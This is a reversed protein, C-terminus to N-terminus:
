AHGLLSAIGPRSLVNRTAITSGREHELHDLFATLIRWTDRYATITNISLDRQTHAFDTFFTQLHTAM